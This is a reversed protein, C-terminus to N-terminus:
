GCASITMENCREPPLSVGENLASPQRVGRDALVEVVRCDKIDGCACQDILRKM